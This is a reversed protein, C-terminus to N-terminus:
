KSRKNKPPKDLKISANSHFNLGECESHKISLGYEPGTATIQQLLREFPATQKAVRITDYTYLAETCIQKLIMSSKSLPGGLADHIDSYMATMVILFLYPSLPCIQRIGTEQPLINSDEGGM